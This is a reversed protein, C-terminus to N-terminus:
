LVWEEMFFVDCFPELLVYIAVGLVCSIHEEGRTTVCVVAQTHKDECCVQHLADSEFHM